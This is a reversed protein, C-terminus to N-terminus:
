QLRYKDRLLEMADDVRGVAGGQLIKSGFYNGMSVIFATCMPDSMMMRWNELVDAGGFVSRQSFLHNLSTPKQANCTDATNSFCGMWSYCGLIEFLLQKDEVGTILDSSRLVELADTQLKFDSLNGLIFQFKELSDVPISRYDMDHERILAMGRRDRDLLKCISVLQDRNTQLKEYVLQMVTRVRRSEQWRGVLGSGIFTVVVGLVVVSLQLLYERLTWRSASKKRAM